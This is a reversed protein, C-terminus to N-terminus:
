FYYNSGIAFGNENTSTHWNCNAYISINKRINYQAGVAFQSHAKELFDSISFNMSWLDNIKVSTGVDYGLYNKLNGSDLSQGNETIDAYPVFYDGRLNAGGKLQWAFNNHAIVKLTAGGFFFNTM